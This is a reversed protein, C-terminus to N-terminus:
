YLWIGKLLYVLSDIFFYIGIGLLFLSIIIRTANSLKKRNNKDLYRSAIKILKENVNFILSVELIYLPIQVLLMWITLCLITLLINGEKASLAVMAWFTPDSMAWFEFIFGTLPMSRKAFKM